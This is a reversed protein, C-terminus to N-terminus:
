IDSLHNFFDIPIIIDVDGYFLTRIRAICNTTENRLINLMGRDANCVYFAAYRNSSHKYSEITEFEPTIYSNDSLKILLPSSTDLFVYSTCDTAASISYTISTPLISKLFIVSIIIANGNITKVTSYLVTNSITESFYDYSGSVAMAGTINGFNDYFTKSFETAIPKREKDTITVLCTESLTGAKATITTSGEKKPTIKGNSVTAITTNSSEWTVHLSSDATITATETVDISISTRSITLYDEELINSCGFFLMSAFFGFLLKKM